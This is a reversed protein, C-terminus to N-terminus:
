SLSAVKKAFDEYNMEQGVQEKDNFRFTPTGEIKYEAQARNEEDMIAQRLTDDALTKQFVNAPMGALAAMKQLEEQPNVDRAFAWRDQSALLSLVFPEYREPPLTRAIMAAALAIQDLPFDRFIYYVKGTDILNSRIQPFVEAAFRACHTCTLSFWEEVHVKAAPNGAARVAMRPDTAARAARISLTPGLLLAPTATAILARRTVPM